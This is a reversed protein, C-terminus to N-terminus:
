NPNNLGMKKNSQIIKTDKEKKIDNDIDKNIGNIINNKISSVINLKNIDIDYDINQHKNNKILNALEIIKNYKSLNVFTNVLLSNFFCYSFLKILKLNLL